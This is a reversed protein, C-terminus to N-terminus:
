LGTYFNLLFLIITIDLHFDFRDKERESKNYKRM